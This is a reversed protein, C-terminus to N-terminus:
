DLRGEGGRAHVRRRNGAHHGASQRGPAGARNRPVHRVGTELLALQTVLDDRRSGKPKVPVEETFKGIAAKIQDTSELCDPYDTPDLEVAYRQAFVDAGEMIRCHYAKGFVNHAKEEAKAEEIMKRKRENLWPTNAWFIMPSAALKKIGHSSLAPLAHYEEDSMGFYIGPSPLPPTGELCPALFPRPTEQGDGIIEAVTSLGAREVITPDITQTM